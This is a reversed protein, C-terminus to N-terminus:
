CTHKNWNTSYLCCVLNSSFLFFANSWCRLKITSWVSFYEVHSASLMFLDPISLTLGLTGGDTFEDRIDEGVLCTRDSPINIIHQTSPETPKIHQCYMIRVNKVVKVLYKQRSLTFYEWFMKWGSKHFSKVIAFEETYWYYLYKTDKVNKITHNFWITHPPCYKCCTIPFSFLTLPSSPFGSPLYIINFHIDSFSDTLTHIPNLQSLSTDLQQSKHIHYHAKCHKLSTSIILVLFVNRKVTFNTNWWPLGYKGILEKKWFVWYEM